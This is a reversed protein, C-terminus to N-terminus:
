AGAADGRMALLHGRELVARARAASGAPARGAARGLWYSGEGALGRARWYLALATALEVGDAALDRGGEGPQSDGLAYELAATVNAHERRLERLRAVQDDDLFHDRFGRALALYRAVLRNRPGSAAGGDALREAGFERITELMLYQTPQGSAGAASDIRVLVSKDVLRIVTPMVHDDGPGDACVEEAASLTFPGAFVSLRAWLAREAPTCLDHSWGVAARLTRHRGGHQGSTLLALRQDLRSALESLPLARLRVAALEIALPIGDLRQCLRIVDPLDDPTITFGPVAAAARQLFLDVAGGSSEEPSAVEWEAGGPVPLPAVPCANEGSVDLPERSTALMTVRPARAIVAEAFMACADILHECTDLVLLLHRDRLHALM